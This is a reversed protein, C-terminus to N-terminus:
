VVGSAPPSQDLMRPALDVGVLTRAIPRVTARRAATGCGLRHRGDAGSARGRRGGRGDFPAGIISGISCTITSGIPTTTSCSSLINRPCVPAASRRHGLGGLSVRRGIFGADASTGGGLAASAEEVNGQEEFVLGLNCWAGGLSPRADHSQPSARDGRTAPGCRALATGLEYQTKACGVRAEGLGALDGGGGPISGLQLLLPGLNRYPKAYQPRLRIPAGFPSSRARLTEGALSRTAWTTIFSPPIRGCACPRVTVPSRRTSGAWSVCATGLAHHADPFEPQLNVAQRYADVVAGLTEQDRLANGLNLHAAAFQPRLAIAKQYWKEAELPERRAAYLIGLDNCYAPNKPDLTVVQKMLEIAPDIERRQYHAGARRLLESVHPATVNPQGSM